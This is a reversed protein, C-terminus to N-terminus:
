MMITYGYVRTNVDKSDLGDLLCRLASTTDIAGALEPQVVRGPRTVLVFLDKLGYRHTSCRESLVFPM